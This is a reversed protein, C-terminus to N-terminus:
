QWLGFGILEDIINLRPFGAYFIIEKADNPAACPLGIHKEFSKKKKRGEMASNKGGRESKLEEIEKLYDKITAVLEEEREKSHALERSLDDIVEDKEQLSKEYEKEKYILASEASKTAQLDIKHTTQEAALLRAVRGREFILNKIMINKEHIVKNLKAIERGRVSSLRVKDMYDSDAKKLREELDDIKNKQEDLLADNFQSAAESLHDTFSTPKYKAEAIQEDLSAKNSDPSEVIENKHVCIGFSALDFVKEIISDDFLDFYTPAPTFNCKDVFKADPYVKKIADKASQITEEKTM